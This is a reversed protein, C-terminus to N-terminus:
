IYKIWIRIHKSICKKNRSTSVFLKFRDRESEFRNFTKRKSIILSNSNVCVFEFRSLYKIADSEEDWKCM